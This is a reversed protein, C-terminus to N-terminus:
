INILLNRESQWMLGVVSIKHKLDREHPRLIEEVIWYQM